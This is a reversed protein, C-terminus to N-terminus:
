SFDTFQASGIGCIWWVVLAAQHLFLTSGRQGGNKSKGSAQGGCRLL